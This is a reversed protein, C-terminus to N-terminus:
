QKTSKITNANTDTTELENNKDIRGLLGGLKNRESFFPRFQQNKTKFNEKFFSNHQNNEADLFFQSLIQRSTM